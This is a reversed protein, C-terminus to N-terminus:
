NIFLWGWTPFSVVAILGCVLFLPWAYQIEENRHYASVSKAISVLLLVLMIVGILPVVVIDIVSHMQGMINGKVTELASSASGVIGINM